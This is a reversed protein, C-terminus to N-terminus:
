AERMRMIVEFHLLSYAFSFIVAYVVVFIGVSVWAYVFLFLKKNNNKLASLSQAASPLVYRKTSM